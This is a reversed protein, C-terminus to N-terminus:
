LEELSWEQDWVVINSDISIIGSEVTHDPTQDTTAVLIPKPVQILNVLCQPSPRSTAPRPKNIEINSFEARLKNWKVPRIVSTSNIQFHIPRNELFFWKKLHQPQCKGRFHILARANNTNSFIGGLFDSGQNTKHLKKRRLNSHIEVFRGYPWPQFETTM